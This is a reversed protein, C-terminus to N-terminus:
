PKAEAASRRMQFPPSNVIGLIISSWRYDRPAAGRMIARVTPRDSYDLGRGLAYALLKETVTGVFLQPRSLLLTRLGAPGDFTVGGPLEGSVDLPAGAETTPRFTGIADFNELAFGLPDM